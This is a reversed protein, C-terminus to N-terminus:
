EGNDSAPLGARRKNPGRPKRPKREPAAQTSSTVRINAAIIFDKARQLDAIKGDLEEIAEDFVSKAM